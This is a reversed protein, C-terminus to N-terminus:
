LEPKLEEYILKLKKRARHARVKVNSESWGTLEATERISREELDLLTIITRDKAELQGLLLAVVESAEAQSQIQATSADVAQFHATPDLLQESERRKRNKRLFDYCGRVTLTMVWHEFPAKARYTPLGKWIKLLLDQTLDELEARSRAYRSATNWIKSHYQKALHVFADEDGRKARKVWESEPIATDVQYSTRNTDYYFM